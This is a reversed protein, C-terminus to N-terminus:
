KNQATSEEGPTGSTEDNDATVAETKQRKVQAGVEAVIRKKLRFPAHETTMALTTEDVQWKNNRHVLNVLILTKHLDPM